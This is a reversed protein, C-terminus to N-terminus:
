WLFIRVWTYDPNGADTANVVHGVATKGGQATPKLSM